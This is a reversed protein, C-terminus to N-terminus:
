SQLEVKFRPAGTPDDVWNIAFDSGAINVSYGIISGNVTANTSSSSMQVEGNPAYILGTWTMNSGSFQIANTSCSPPTEANSFLVLPSYAGPTLPAYGTIDADGIVHMSGEAVFTVTVGNATTVGKLNIADNGTKPSYYIGSHIIEIASTNGTAHGNSTMWGNDIATSPASNFYHSPDALQRPGGPRFEAIDLELPYVKPSGFFQEATVGANSQFNGRYEIDGNVTTNPGNIKLDGNSFIGGNITKTAGTLDLEIAGGSPCADAGAFIAYGGLFDEQECTAVGESVVTLTEAGVGPAAFTTDNVQQIIVEYEATGLPKVTVVVEPDNDDYGNQAAVALASGVPDPSGAVRPNCEEWAAALAANDAANQTGRRQDFGLGGDIALAAFGVLVLLSIAMLFAAAGKEDRIRAPM